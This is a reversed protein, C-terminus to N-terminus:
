CGTPPWLNSLLVRNYTGAHVYIHGQGQRVQGRM